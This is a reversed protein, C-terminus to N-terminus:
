SSSSHQYRCDVNFVSIDLIWWDRLSVSCCSFGKVASCSPYLSEAPKCMTLMGGACALSTAAPIQSTASQVYYLPADASKCCQRGKCMARVDSPAHQRQVTSNRQSRAQQQHQEADTQAAAQLRELEDTLVEAVEAADALEADKEAASASAGEAAAKLEQM